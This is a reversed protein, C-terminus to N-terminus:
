KLQNLPKSQTPLLFTSGRYRKPDCESGSHRLIDLILKAIPRGHACFKPSVNINYHRRWKLNKPVQRKQPDVGSTPNMFEGMIRQSSVTRFRIHYWTIFVDSSPTIWLLESRCLETLRPRRADVDLVGFMLITYVGFILKKRLSM